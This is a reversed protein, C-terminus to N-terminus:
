TSIERLRGIILLVRTGVLFVALVLFQLFALLLLYQLRGVQGPPWEPCPLV